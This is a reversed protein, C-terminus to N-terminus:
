AAAREAVPLAELARALLNKNRVLVPRLETGATYRAENEALEKMLPAYDDADEFPQRDFITDVCKQAMPTLVLSAPHVEWGRAGDEHSTHILADNTKKNPLYCTLNEPHDPDSYILLATKLVAASAAQPPAPLQMSEDLIAKIRALTAHDLGEKGFVNIHIIKQSNDVAVQNENGPIQVAVEGTRAASPGGGQAVVLQRLMKGIKDNQSLIQGHQTLASLACKTRKMRPSRVAIGCTAGCAPIPLSFEDVSSASRRISTSYMKQCTKPNSFRRAHHRGRLIDEWDRPSQSCRADYM